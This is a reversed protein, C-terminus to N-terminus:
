SKNQRIAEFLCIAASSTVNLSESTKVLPITVRLGALKSLEPRIGKGESGFIWALNGRLDAQYLPIGEHAVAAVCKGTYARMISELDAHERISLHFHGGQGARLVKFSWPYACGPGLFVDRIGAAAATRLLTGVNGSDQVGDLIMCSGTAPEHNEAPIPIRAVIGIPSATGGLQRFLGDPFVCTDCNQLQDLLPIIEPHALGSDSVGIMQPRGVLALYAQILHPGDILAGGEQRQKRTDSALASLAKFTPNDRSSIRKM